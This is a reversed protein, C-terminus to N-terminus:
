RKCTMEHLKTWTKGKDSSSEQSLKLAKPDTLDFHERSQLAGSGGIWDLNFDLKGDKLGDSSGLVQNGANDVLVRRWKKGDFTIFAEYKLRTTKGVKADLSDHIWFGDLDAKSRLTATLPAPQAEGPLQMTGTCKWTGTLMKALDTVEQPIKPDAEAAGAILLAVVALKM